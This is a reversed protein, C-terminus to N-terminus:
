IEMELTFVNVFQIANNKGFLQGKSRNVLEGQTKRCTQISNTFTNSVFPLSVQALTPEQGGFLLNKLPMTENSNSLWTNLLFAKISPKTHNSLFVWLWIYWNIEEGFTKLSNPLYPRHKPLIREKSTTM